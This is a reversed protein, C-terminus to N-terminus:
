DEVVEVTWVMNDNLFPEGNVTFVQGDEVPSGDEEVMYFEDGERLSSMSVEIWTKKLVRRKEKDNM